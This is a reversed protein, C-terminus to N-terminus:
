FTTRTIATTPLFEASFAVADEVEGTIEYTVCLATFTIKVNSATSGYPGWIIVRATLAAFVGALVADPGTTATPDFFGEISMNADTHGALRTKFATGYTTTEATDLERAFTVNTIYTSLDRESGDNISWYGNKGHQFAM